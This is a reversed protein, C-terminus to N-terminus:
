NANPNPQAAPQIQLHKPLDRACVQASGKGLNSCEWDPGFGQNAWFNATPYQIGVWLAGCTVAGLPLIAALAILFRRRDHWRFADVAQYMALGTFVAFLATSSFVMNSM